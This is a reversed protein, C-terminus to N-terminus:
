PTQGQVDKQEADLFGAVREMERRCEVAEEAMGLKEYVKLANRLTRLLNHM